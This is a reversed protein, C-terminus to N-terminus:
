RAPLLVTPLTAGSTREMQAATKMAGDATQQVREEAAQRANEAVGKAQATAAQRADDAKARVKATAAERAGDAQAVATQKLEQTKKIMEAEAQKRGNELERQGAKAAKKAVTKGFSAAVTSM